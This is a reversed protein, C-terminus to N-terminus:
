RTPFVHGCRRCSRYDPTTDFAQRTPGGCDDCTQAVKRVVEETYYEVYQGCVVAYVQLDGHQSRHAPEAPHTEPCDHCDVVLRTNM